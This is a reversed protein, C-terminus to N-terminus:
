KGDIHVDVDVNMGAKLRGLLSDDANDFEIKIPLRQVVKVFNGSANDPPLLAFRAGTAPSFSAVKAEFDHGPLADANVIVKQGIRIKNYQTEKFNAVVWLHQDLVISFTSQGANLFQGVQVNVKSVLGNAPATIVAYSLNLRADNVDVQRQKITSAAVSIQSSTANSQSAVSSTQSSAQNKQQELIQLQKEASEKAAQKDEFQQQTVSHDQILNAYRNYEQTTQWVNVKAKEIEADVALVAIQSTGINSRAATTAAKAASLSSQATALAAEAQELKILLDRDDLILLTDGVKVQQNDSVRVEKVYGSVRPIIPSINAEVQADDTEMHHQAHNWKSIGFWGGAIVLAILIILFVKSRKKPQSQGYNEKETAM